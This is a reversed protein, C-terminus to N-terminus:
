HAAPKELRAKLYRLETMAHEYDKQVGNLPGRFFWEVVRGFATKPFRAWVHASLDAGDNAEEVTWTVGEEIFLRFGLYRYVADAEWTVSRGPDYGTVAGEAVGPIGAISEKVRIRVGERLTSDDSLIELSEHEDNSPVWWDQIDALLDWVAAPEANMHQKATFEFM